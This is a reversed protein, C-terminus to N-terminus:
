AHRRRQRRTHRPEANRPEKKARRPTRGRSQVGFFAALVGEGGSARLRSLPVGILPTTRAATACPLEARIIAPQLPRVAPNPREPFLPSPGVPSCRCPVTSCSARTAVSTRCHWQAEIGSDPAARVSERTLARARRWHSDLLNITASHVKTGRESAARASTTCTSIGTSRDTSRLEGGPRCPDRPQRSGSRTTGRRAPRLSAPASVMATLPTGMNGSACPQPLNPRAM